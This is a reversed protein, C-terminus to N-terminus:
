LEYHMILHCYDSLLQPASQHARAKILHRTTPASIIRGDTLLAVKPLARLSRRGRREMLLWIFTFLGNYPSGKATRSNGYLRLNASEGSPAWLAGRCLLQCKICDFYYMITVFTLFVSFIYYIVLDMSQFALNYYFITISGNIPPPFPTTFIFIFLIIAAAAAAESVTAAIGNAACAAM